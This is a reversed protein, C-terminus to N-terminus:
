EEGGGAEDAVEVRMGDIPTDVASLCLRDGLEFGSEIVAQERDAHLVQLERIRLRGEKDVVLARQSGQILVRPVVYVGKVERGEIAAEVFMGVRLPPADTIEGVTYPDEVVVIISTMRSDVDVEGDVRVVRGHWRHEQRGFRGVLTVRIPRKRLEDFQLGRPLDLFRLEALPLPLSVEVRDVSFLSALEEGRRVFQGVDVTAQRVRGDFPATIRTRELDLNAKELDAEAAALASRADTLQPLRLLLASAEKEQGLENWDKEAVKAEAEVTALRLRMAAVQAEARTVALEFDRSDLALLLEGQRFFGGKKLAPSIVRVKGDVESILRIATAAEVTGQSRIVFPFDVRDLMQVEVTPPLTEVPNPTVTRRLKIMVVLATFSIALVLIPLVIKRLM